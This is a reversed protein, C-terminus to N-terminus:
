VCARARAHMCARGGARGGARVCARVCARVRVRVVISYPSTVTVGLGPFWASDTVAEATASRSLRACALFAALLWQTQMLGVQLQRPSEPQVLASLSGCQQM